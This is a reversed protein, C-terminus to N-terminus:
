FGDFSTLNYGELAGPPLQQFVSDPPALLTKDCIQGNKLDDTFGLKDAFNLVEGFNGAEQATEVIDKMKVFIPKFGSQYRRKSPSATFFFPSSFQSKM